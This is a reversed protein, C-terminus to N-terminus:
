FFARSDRLFIFRLRHDRRRNIVDVTSFYKRNRDKLFIGFGIRRIEETCSYEQHFHYRLTAHFLRTPLIM